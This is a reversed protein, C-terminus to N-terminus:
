DSEDGEVPENWFDPIPKLLQECHSTEKLANRPDTYGSKIMYILAEEITRRRYPELDDGPLFATPRLHELYTRVKALVKLQEDLNGVHVVGSLGRDLCITLDYTYSVLVVDTKGLLDIKITTNVFPYYKKGTWCCWLKPRDHIEAWNVVSKVRLRHGEDDLHHAGVNITM